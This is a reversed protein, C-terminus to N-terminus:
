FFCAAHRTPMRVWELISPLSQRVVMLRETRLINTGPIVKRDLIEVHLVQQSLENPYKRWSALSVQEFPHEFLHSTAFLRM